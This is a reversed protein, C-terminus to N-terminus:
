KYSFTKYSELIKTLQLETNLSIMLTNKISRGRLSACKNRQKKIFLRARKQHLKAFGVAYELDQM